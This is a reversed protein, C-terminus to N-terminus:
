LHYKEQDGSFIFGLIKILQVECVCCNRNLSGMVIFGVAFSILFVQEPSVDEKKREHVM